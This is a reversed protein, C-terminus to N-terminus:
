AASLPQSARLSAPVLMSALLDLVLTATRQERDLEPSYEVIELARLRPHRGIGQLV